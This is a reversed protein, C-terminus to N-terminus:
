SEDGSVCLRTVANRANHPPYLPPATVPFLARDHPTVGIVGTVYERYAKSFDVVM